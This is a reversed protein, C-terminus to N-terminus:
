NVDGVGDPAFDAAIIVYTRASQIVKGVSYVLPPDCEEDQSEWGSLAIADEWTIKVLDGVTIKM